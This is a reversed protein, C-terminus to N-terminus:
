LYYYGEFVKVSPGTMYVHGQPKWSIKLTGGPLHVEAYEKILGKQIAAVTTACAGSGCALTEGAGREWVRLKISHSGIIQAMNVNVKQPFLAHSEILPGIRSLPMTDVNEVFFVIHPNGMSLALGPVLAIEPFTINFTDLPHSLPIEEWSFRPKVMEITLADGEYFAKVSGAATEIVMEKVNMEKLLLSAVCRTANGCTASQSGDANFIEMLIGHATQKILILQDCGIGLHRNALLSVTEKTLSYEKQRADIIIFDNGAGHM